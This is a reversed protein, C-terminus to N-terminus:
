VPSIPFEKEWLGGSPIYGESYLIFVRTFVAAFVPIQPM